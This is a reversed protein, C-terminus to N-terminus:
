PEQSQVLQTEPFLRVSYLAALPIAVEPATNPESTPEAKSGRNKGKPKELSIPNKIRLCSDEYELLKGKLVLPLGQFSEKLRLEVTEGRFIRYESENKLIRDIGPSEVELVYAGEIVPGDESEARADLSQELRRSVSECDDLTIREGKRHITVNVVRRKGQQSINVGVLLLGLNSVVSEALKLLEEITKDQKSPM